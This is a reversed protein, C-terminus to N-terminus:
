VDQLADREVDRVAAHRRQEAAVADALRRGQAGQHPEDLAPARELQRAVVDRAHARVPDDSEADSVDGLIAVDEGRERDVLVQAERLAVGLRAVVEDVVQKGLQPRPALLRCSRERAPLLLHERDATSEEVVVAQQEDVLRRLPQRRQEHGLHREGELADRLQRRHQEDLLVEADHLADGAVRDHEVRAADHVDPRRPSSSSSLGRIWRRSPTPHAGEEEERDGAEAQTRHVEQDGGPQRQDVPQHAHQVEGM